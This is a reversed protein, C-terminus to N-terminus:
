EDHLVSVRGGSARRGLPLESEEDGDNFKVTATNNCADLSSISGNFWGEDSEGFGWLASVRDGVKFMLGDVQLEPVSTTSSSNLSPTTPKAPKDRIRSKKARTRSQPKNKAHAKLATVFNDVTAPAAKEFCASSCVFPLEASPMSKPPLWRTVVVNGCAVCHLSDSDVVPPDSTSQSPNSTITMSSTKVVAAGTLKQRKSGGGKTKVETKTVGINDEIKVKTKPASPHKYKARKTSPKSIDGDIKAKIETVGANPRKVPTKDINDGEDDDSSTVLSITQKVIKGAKVRRRYYRRRELVIDRVRDKIALKHNRYYDRGLNRLKRYVTKAMNNFVTENLHSKVFLDRRKGLLLDQSDFVEYVVRRKVFKRLMLIEPDLDKKGARKKEVVPPTWAPVPEPALTIEDESSDSDFHLEPRARCHRPPTAPLPAPTTQQQNEGCSRLLMVIKNVLIAPDMRLLTSSM